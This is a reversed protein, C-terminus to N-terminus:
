LRFSKSPAFAVRYYVAGLAVSMTYSLILTAAIGILAGTGLHQLLAFGTALLDNLVNWLSALGMTHGSVKDRASAVARDVFGPSAYCLGGFLALLAALSSWRFAVPWHSWSQRYWPLAQRRALAAMVQPVLGNPAELEPLAKLQRDIEIELKKEDPLM